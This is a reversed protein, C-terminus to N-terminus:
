NDLPDITPSHHIPFSTCTAITVDNTELINRAPQLFAEPQEATRATRLATIQVLCETSVVRRRRITHYIHVLTDSLCHHKPPVQQM